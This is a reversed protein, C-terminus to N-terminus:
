TNRGTAAASRAASPPSSSPPANARARARHSRGRGARRSERLRARDRAGSWAIFGDGTNRDAANVAATSGDSPVRRHGHRRRGHRRRGPRRRGHRRRGPWRRLHRGRHRPGRHRPRRDGRLLRGRQHHRSEDRAVGPRRDQAPDVQVHRDARQDRHEAARARALGREQPHDGPEVSGVGARHTEGAPQHDAVPDVHGGLAAVDSQHRLVTGQEPVQRHRVVHPEPQAPGRAPSRPDTLQELEHTQGAVPPPHGVLQGAPLLLADRQGPCEGRFRREHQHVLREGREVGPQARLHALLHARRQPRRTGGGHQHGVVLLLCQSRGVDHRHETLAPHSLRAWRAGHVGSRCVDADAREDPLGDHQHGGDPRAPGPGHETLEVDRARVAGPPNQHPGLLEPEAHSAPGGRDDLHEEVAM